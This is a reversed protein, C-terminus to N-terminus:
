ELRIFFDEGTKNRLSKGLTFAFDEPPVLLSYNYLALVWRDDSRNKFFSNGRIGTHMGSKILNPNGDSIGLQGFLGM